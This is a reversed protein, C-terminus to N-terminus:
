ANGVIPTHALSDFLQLVPDLVNNSLSANAFAFELHVLALDLLPLYEIIQLVIAVLDLQELSGHLCREGFLELHVTLLGVLPENAVNIILGCSCPSVLGERGVAGIEIGVEELDISLLSLLVEGRPVLLNLLESSCLSM